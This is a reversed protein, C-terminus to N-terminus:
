LVATGDAGCSYTYIILHHLVHSGALCPGPSLPHIHQSTFIERLAAYGYGGDNGADEQAQEDGTYDYIHM